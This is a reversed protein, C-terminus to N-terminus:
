LHNGTPNITIDLETTSKAVGIITVYNGSTLDGFPAIGGANAASLVYIVGATLVANLTLPGGLLYTCPQGSAGGNLAIGDVDADVATDAKAAVIQGSTNLRIPMGATVTGGLTGTKTKGNVGKVVATATISLDSM